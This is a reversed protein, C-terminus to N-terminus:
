RLLSRELVNRVQGAHLDREFRRAEPLPVVIDEAAEDPRVAGIFIHDIGRMADARWLPHQDAGIDGAPGVLVIRLLEGSVAVLLPQADAAGRDLRKMGASRM